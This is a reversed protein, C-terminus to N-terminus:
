ISRQLVPAFKNAIYWRSGSDEVPEQMMGLNNGDGAAAVSQFVTGAAIIRIFLFLVLLIFSLIGTLLRRLTRKRGSREARSAAAM